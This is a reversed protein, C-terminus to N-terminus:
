KFFYFCIFLVGLLFCVVGSKINGLKGKVCFDEPKEPNYKITLKEGPKFKNPVISTIDAESVFVKGDVIYKVVPSYERRRNTSNSKYSHRKVETIEAEYEVTCKIKKSISRWTVWLGVLLFIIGLIIIGVENM